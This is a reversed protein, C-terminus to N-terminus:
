QKDPYRRQLYSVSDKVLQALVQQDIDSLKKVYLCGKGEKHKGLKDLLAPRNDFGMVYLSINQKRPSFGALCSYGEHGSEYKYHYQGFGVISTGWMKAPFGTAKEMLKVLDFCDKKVQEDPVTELFSTVTQETPKTKQEAM